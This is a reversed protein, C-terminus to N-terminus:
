RLRRRKGLGEALLKLAFMMAEKDNLAADQLRTIAQETSALQEKHSALKGNLEDQLTQHCAASILDQAFMQASHLLQQQIQAVSKLLSEKNALHTQTETHPRIIIVSMLLWDSALADNVRSM